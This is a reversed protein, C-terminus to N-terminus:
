DAFRVGVAFDQSGGLGSFRIYTLHAQTGAEADYIPLDNYEWSDDVDDVNDPKGLAAKIQAKTQTGVFKRFEEKDM